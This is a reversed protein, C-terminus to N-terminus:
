DQRHDGAAARVGGDDHDGVPRDLEDGGGSRRSRLRQVVRLQQGNRGPSWVAVFLAAVAVIASL